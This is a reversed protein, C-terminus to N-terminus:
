THPRALYWEAKHHSNLHALERLLGNAVNPSKTWSLVAGRHLILCNYFAIPVHPSCLDKAPDNQALNASLM